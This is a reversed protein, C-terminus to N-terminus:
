LGFKGDGQWGTFDKGVSPALEIGGTTLIGGRRTEEGATSSCGGVGALGLALAVVAAVRRLVTTM